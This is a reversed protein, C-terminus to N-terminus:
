KIKLNYLKRYLYCLFDVSLNYNNFCNLMITANFLVIDSTITFEGEPWSLIAPITNMQSVCSSFQGSQVFCLNESMPCFAPCFLVTQSFSFLHPSGYTGNSIEWLSNGPWLLSLPFEFPAWPLGSNLLCFKYNPSSHCLPSSFHSFVKLIQLHIDKLRKSVQDKCLYSSGEQALSIVLLCFYVSYDKFSVCAESYRM